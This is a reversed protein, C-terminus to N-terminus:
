DGLQIGVSGGGGEGGALMSDVGSCNQQLSQISHCLSFQLYAAVVM